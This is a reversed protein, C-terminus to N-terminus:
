LDSLLDGLERASVDELRKGRRELQENLKVATEQMQAHTEASGGLLVFNPGRTLRKQGDRADLGIGLLASQRNSDVTPRRSAKM